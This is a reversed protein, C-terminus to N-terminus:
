SKAFDLYTKPVEGNFVTNVLMLKRSVDIDKKYLPNIIAIKTNIKLYIQFNIQNIGVAEFKTEYDVTANGISSISTKFKPGMGSFFNIGSFLGIPLEIKADDIKNLNETINESVNLCVNNILITNIDIYNNGKNFNKNLFSDSFLKMEEITKEVSKDIEKSVKNVAYKESIAIITPLVEMDFGCVFIGMLLSILSIIIFFYLKLKFLFTFKLRGKKNIKKFKKFTRIKKIFIM